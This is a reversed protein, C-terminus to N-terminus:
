FSHRRRGFGPRFDRENRRDARSISAMRQGKQLLSIELTGLKAGRAAPPTSFKSFAFDIGAKMTHAGAVRSYNDTLQLTIQPARDAGGLDLVSSFGTISIIPLGGVPM